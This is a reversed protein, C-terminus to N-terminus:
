CDLQTFGINFGQNQTGITTDTVLFESDETTSGLGELDDSMFELTFPHNRTCVTSAITHGEDMNAGNGNDQTGFSLKVVGSGIGKNQGCIQPGSPVNMHITTPTNAIIQQMLATTQTTDVTLDAANTLSYAGPIIICDWGFQATGAAAYGNREVIDAATAPQFLGLVTGYGCCGTPTTHHSGANEGEKGGNTLAFGADGIATFCGVCKGRERRICMREHQQALHINAVAITTAYNYNRLTASGAANWYYKTCGAPPLTQSTCEIHSITLDWKRDAATAVGRSSTAVVGATGFNFMLRNGRDVDAEVYMHQTTLTGCVVPPNTSVSPGQAYFADILCNSTFAIGEQAFDTDPQNFGPTGLRRRGQVVSLTNPGTIAFTTFDLRLSCIDDSAPVVTLSCVGTSVTTPNTWVTLNESSSMGCKDIVFTCCVGFGDACSGASSGSKSSCEQSTYCTGNRANSGVCGDNPFRVVQFTSILKKDRENDPTDICIALPVILSLILCKTYWNKM